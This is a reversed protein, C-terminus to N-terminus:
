RFADGERDRQPTHPDVLVLICSAHHMHVSVLYLVRRSTSMVITKVALSTIKDVHDHTKNVLDRFM